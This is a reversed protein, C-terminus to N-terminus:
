EERIQIFGSRDIINQGEISRIFNAMAVGALKSYERDSYVVFLRRTLPYSGDKMADKNIQGNEQFPAIYEIQQWNDRTVKGIAFFNLLSQDKLLSASAYGFAGPTQIVERIALTHNDVYKINNQGEGIEFGLDALNEQALIVPVIPLSKNAGLQQWNTITGRFIAQLQEISLQTVGVDGGYFFVVGDRAIPQSNLELGQLRAKNAEGPNLARGNFVFDIEGQTLMEIAVSYSPDSNFPVLYEIDFNPFSAFVEEELGGSLLAAFYGEGSYSFVGQPVGEIEAIEQALVIQAEEGDITLVQKQSIRGIWLYVGLLVLGIGVLNWPQSTKKITERVPLKKFLSKANERLNSLKTKTFNNAIKSPESQKSNLPAKCGQCQSNSAINLMGCSPCKTTSKLDNNTFNLM